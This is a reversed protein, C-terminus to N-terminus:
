GLSLCPYPPPPARWLLYYHRHWGWGEGSSERRRLGAATVGRVPTEEGAGGQREEQPEMALACGGSEARLIVKEALELRM